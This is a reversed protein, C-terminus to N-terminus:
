QAGVGARSASARAIGFSAGYLAGPLVFLVVLPLSWYATGFILLHTGLLALPTAVTAIRRMARGPSRALSRYAFHLIPVAVLSPSLLPLVGVGFHLLPYALRPPDIPGVFFGAAVGTVCAAPLFLAFFLTLNRLLM